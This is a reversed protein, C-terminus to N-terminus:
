NRDKELHTSKSHRHFFTGPRSATASPTGPLWRCRYKSHLVVPSFAVQLTAKFSKLPTQTCELGPQSHTHAVDRERRKLAPSTLVAPPWSPLRFQLSVEELRNAWVDKITVSFISKAFQDTDKELLLRELSSKCWIFIYSYGMCCAHKRERRGTVHGERNGLVDLTRNFTQPRLQKCVSDAWLLLSSLLVLLPPCFSSIGLLTLMAELHFGGSAKTFLFYEM